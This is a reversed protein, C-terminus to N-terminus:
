AFRGKRRQAIHEALKLFRVLMANRDNKRWAVVVEITETVDNLKAYRVGQLGLNMISRPVLAVGMGASVLAIATHLHTSAQAVRPHFGAKECIAMTQAYISPVPSRSATVFPEEALDCISITKKGSLRHGSPLALVFRDRLLTKMAIDADLYYPRMFAADISRSRLGEMLARNDSELLEIRVDPAQTRHERLIRPFLDFAIAGLFGITLRGAEGRDAQGSARRLQDFDQLLRQAREVFVEGAKTLQVVRKTRYFLQVGIEAEIRKIQRTLPPQTMHLRAAARTFSLEEAVTLVYRLKRAEM